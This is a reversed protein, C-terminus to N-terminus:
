WSMLLLPPHPTTHTHFYLRQMGIHCFGKSDNVHQAAVVGKTTHRDGGFSMEMTM